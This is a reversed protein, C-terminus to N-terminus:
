CFFFFFLLFSCSNDPLLYLSNSEKSSRLRVNLPSSLDHLGAILPWLDSNITIIDVRAVTVYMVDCWHAKNHCAWVRVYKDM